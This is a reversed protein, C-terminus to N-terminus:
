DLGALKDILPLFDGSKQHVSTSANDAILRELNAPLDEAAILAIDFRTHPLGFRVLDEQTCFVVLAECTSDLLLGLIRKPLDAEGGFRAQGALFTRNNSTWGVRKGRAQLRQAVDQAMEETGGAVLVSPIRGDAGAPFRDRMIKLALGSSTGPNHNVEIIACAIDRWSAGIDPTIFDIGIADMRFNRAIVEAMAVNDSHIRGTVDELAGGTKINSTTSLRFERGAPPRADLSLGQKRLLSVMREGVILEYLYDGAAVAKRRRVNDARILEAVSSQGDGVLSPIVLRSARFLKGGFVSLRHDDGPVFREVLVQGSRSLPRALGFAADLEAMTDIDATVGTAGNRDAPKVVLPFGLTQAAARAEALNSV